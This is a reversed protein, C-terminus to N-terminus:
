SNVSESPLSNLKFLCIITSVEFIFFTFISLFILGSNCYRNLKIYLNKGMVSFPSLLNNVICLLNITLSFLSLISYLIKKQTELLYKHYLGLANEYSLFILDPFLALFILLIDLFLLLNFEM